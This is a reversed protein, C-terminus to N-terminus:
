ESTWDHQSWGEYHKFRSRLYFEEYECQQYMYEIMRGFHSNDLKVHDDSEIVYPETEALDDLAEKAAGVQDSRVGCQNAVTEKSVPSGYDHKAILYNLISCYVETEPM